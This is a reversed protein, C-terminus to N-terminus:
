DYSLVRVDAGDAVLLVNSGAAAAIRQAIQEYEDEYLDPPEAESDAWSLTSVEYGLATELGRVFPEGGPGVLVSVGKRRSRELPQLVEPEARGDQRYVLWYYPLFVAVAAVVGIAGKADRLSTLALEGDLLDRLFVILLFTLSGLLALVGVTLAGFIFIRRALSSREEAGTEQVRLQASRWYYGWAPVGVAALTIFLVVRNRWFDSGAFVDRASDVFIAVANTVVVGVGVALAGLGLAAVIYAYARRSSREGLPSVDGERQVVMWHYLWLGVGVSLTAVAGPMFRFHASAADDDPVGILWVLVGFLIVGASALATVFGGLLAFVYLYVQRLVSRLERSAFYHWHAWWGAAGILLVALSTKMADQWLGAQTPMLVPLTVASEYGERLIIHVIRGGGVALMVLTVLSFIYVYLRRIALTEVTSQGESSELRWHYAWVGAWITIAAWPYGTFDKSGFVWQLASVSAAILLGASVGLVVYVYLKRVISRTEVTLESVYRLVLRWHFGWLPLGVLSLSIGIALGSRSPSLVDGGFLGELVYREIQVLGNAAVMLAVFSVAYFYLRRVTGIGPDVPELPAQRRRWQVIAYVIAGIIVLPVLNGVLGFLDPM